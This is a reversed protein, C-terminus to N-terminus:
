KVVKIIEDYAWHNAGDVLLDTPLKESADTDANIIRNVFAVVEARTVNGEPRFTFTGDAEAYGKTYGCSVFTKIYSEAWHGKIDTFDSTATEDLKMGFAVSLIKVFEARTITNEGKFTKDEYGNLIKATVFKQVTLKYKDSVDGFAPAFEESTIEFLNDLAEIVEYRTAPSDPKFTGDEYMAMYKAKSQNEVNKIEAKYEKEKNGTMSDVISSIDKNEEKEPKVEEPLDYEGPEPERETTPAIISLPEGISVSFKTLNSNSFLLKETPIEICTETNQKDVPIADKYKFTATILEGDGTVDGEVTYGGLMVKDYKNKDDNRSLNDLYTFDGCRDSIKTSVPTVVYKDFFLQFNFSAFGPNNEISVIVKFSSDDIKESSLVLKAGEASVSISMSLVIALALIVSIFKKMSHVEKRYENHIYELVNKIYQLYFIESYHFFTDM